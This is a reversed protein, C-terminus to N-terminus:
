AHTEWPCLMQSIQAREDATLDGRPQPSADTRLGATPEPGQGHGSHVTFCRCYSTLLPTLLMVRPVHLHDHPDHRSLHTLPAPIHHAPIPSQPLNLPDIGAGAHACCISQQNPHVTGVGCARLLCGILHGGTKGGIGKCLWSGWTSILSTDFLPQPKWYESVLQEWVRWFLRAQGSCTHECTGCVCGWM